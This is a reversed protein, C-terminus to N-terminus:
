ILNAGARYYSRGRASILFLGSRSYPLLKCIEREERRVRTRHTRTRAVDDYMARQQIIARGDKPHSPQTLPNSRAAAVRKSKVFARFM